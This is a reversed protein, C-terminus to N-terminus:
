MVINHTVLRFYSNLESVRLNIRRTNNGHAVTMRSGDISVVQCRIWQGAGKSFVEVSDGVRCHWSMRLSRHSRDSRTSSQVSTGCQTTAGLTSSSAASSSDVSAKLGKPLLEEVFSPHRELNPYWRIQTQEPYIVEEELHFDSVRTTLGKEQVDDADENRAKAYLWLACFALGACLLCALLLLASLTKWPLFVGDPSVPEHPAVQPLSTPPPVVSVARLHGLLQTSTAQPMPLGSLQPPSVVAARLLPMSQLMHGMQGCAPPGSIALVESRLLAKSGHLSCTGNQLFTFRACGLTLGCRGQCIQWGVEMSISTGPLAPEWAEGAVVGLCGDLSAQEAFAFGAFVKTGPNHWFALWLGCRCVMLM